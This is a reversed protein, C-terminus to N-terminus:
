RDFVGGGVEVDHRTGRLLAGMNACEHPLLDVPFPISESITPTTTM